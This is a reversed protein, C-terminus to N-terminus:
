AYKEPVNNAYYDEIDIDQYLVVLKNGVKKLRHVPKQKRMDEIKDIWQDGRIISYRAVPDANGFHINQHCEKCLFILNVPQMWRAFMSNCKEIHHHMLDFHNGCVECKENPYNKRYSDQLARDARDKAAKSPNKSKKRLFTKKV